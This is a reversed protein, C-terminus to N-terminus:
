LNQVVNGSRNQMSAEMEECKQKYVDRQNLTDKIQTDMLSIQNKLVDLYQSFQQKFIVQEQQQQKQLQALLSPDIDALTMPANPVKKKM